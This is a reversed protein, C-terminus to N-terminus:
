IKKTNKNKCINNNYNNALFECSESFNKIQNSNPKDIGNYLKIIDNNNFITIM